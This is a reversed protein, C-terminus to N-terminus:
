LLRICVALIRSSYARPVPDGRTYLQTILSLLFYHVDLFRTRYRTLRSRMVRKLGLEYFSQPLWRPSHAKFCWVHASRCDNKKSSLFYSAKTISTYMARSTAGIGKRTGEKTVGILARRLDEALIRGLFTTVEQRIRNNNSSARRKKRLSLLPLCFFLPSLTM